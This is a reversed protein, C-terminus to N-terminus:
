AAAREEQHPEVTTAYYYALWASQDPLERARRRGFRAKITEFLYAM